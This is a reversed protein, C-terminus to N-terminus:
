LKFRKNNRSPIYFEFLLDIIRKSLDIEHEELIRKTAYIRQSVVELEKEDLEAQQVLELTHELDHIRQLLVEYEEEIVEVLADSSKKYGVTQKIAEIVTKKRRELSAVQEKNILQRKTNRKLQKILRRLERQQIHIDDLQASLSDLRNHYKRKLLSQLRALRDLRRRLFAIENHMDRAKTSLEEQEALVQEQRLTERITEM